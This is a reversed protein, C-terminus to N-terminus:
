WTGGGPIRGLEDALGSLFGLQEDVVLARDLLRNGAECSTEPVLACAHCAARSLGHPGQATSDMCVPDFSCWQAGAVAASLLRVLRVAEGMRALGGLTGETDGAATYILIGAMRLSSGDESAYLRERLASTPYGAEFATFRLLLHALTHLLVYRPTPPELWNRRLQGMRTSLPECRKRVDARSEWAAIASENFQLFYGEGFVEVAPLFAPDSSLNAPVPEKTTHREFGRLVRVERLRDVLVVKDTVAALLSAAGGLRGHGDPAPFQAPRTIFNDRPDHGAPSAALAMWEDPRIDKLTGGEATEGSEARLSTLASVVVSRLIGTDATIESLLAERAGHDPKELLRQFDGNGLLITRPDNRDSWDSQPPIDIASIVLPFYVSSAGRQQVSLRETCEHRDEDYQWPQRGPCRQKLAGPRM